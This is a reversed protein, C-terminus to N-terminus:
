SAAPTLPEDNSTCEISGGREGDCIEPPFRVTLNINSNMVRFGLLPNRLESRGFSKSM